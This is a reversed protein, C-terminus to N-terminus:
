KGLLISLIENNTKIGKKPTLVKVLKQEIGEINIYTGEEELWISSPLVIDAAEVAPTYYSTQLIVRNLNDPLKEIYPAVIYANKKLAFSGNLGLKKAGLYNSAPALWIFKAKGSIRSLSDSITKDIQSYIIVPNNGTLANGIAKDLDKMQYSLKAIKNLSNPDDDVIILESDNFIARKVFSGVVGFNKDLDVGIVVIKDASLIDSLKGLNDIPNSVNELLGINDGLLDKFKSLVELPLSASIYGVTEKEALIEKAKDIAEEWTVAELKGNKKVMPQTIREKTDNLPAYRGLKCLVGNNVPNEWDGLIQVIYNARKYVEIGCGVSCNACITKVLESDKRTGLYASKKDTLAGTPCVQVCLGCSVCSSEGLPVNLDATLMSDIGRQSIGLVNHGAIESCARICRRCLVCRNHDALIYEHSTDVPFKTTYTPLEFHDLGMSYGLDQLECNSSMECYMCYHNRESFILNLVFKRAKKVTETDTQIEMGESVPLTCSAQLVGPRTEVVCMRCAGISTLKPHYCLVPVDIGIEKLVELVTKGEEVQTPQGNIKINVLAM